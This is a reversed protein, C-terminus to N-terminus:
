GGWIFVSFHFHIGSVVLQGECKDRVMGEREKKKNAAAVNIIAFQIM